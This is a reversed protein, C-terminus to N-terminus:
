ASADVLDSWLRLEACKKDHLPENTISGRCTSLNVNTSKSSGICGGKLSLCELYSLM